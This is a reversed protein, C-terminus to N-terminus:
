GEPYRSAATTSGGEAGYGGDASYEGDARRALIRCLELLNDKVVYHSAGAARAAHRLDDGKCVTVIAIKAEPFAATIRRTAELGDMGKMRIDMFVWDPRHSAYAAIAEAGDSCEYVEAVLEKVIRRIMRRMSASNDVILVSVKETM